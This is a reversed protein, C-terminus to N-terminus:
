GRYTMPDNHTVLHDPIPKSLGLNYKSLGAVPLPTTTDILLHHPPLSQGPYSNMLMGYLPQSHM